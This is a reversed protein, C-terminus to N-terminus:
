TTLRFVEAKNMSFDRIPKPGPMARNRPGSHGNRRKPYDRPVGAGSNYLSALNDQAPAFGQDAAARFWRAAESYDQTVGNGLFYLSALNCQGVANGHEASARYWRAAENM